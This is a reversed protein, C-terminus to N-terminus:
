GDNKEDMTGSKALLFYSYQHRNVEKNGGLHTPAVIAPFNSSTLM